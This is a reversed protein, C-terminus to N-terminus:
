AMYDSHIFKVIDNVSCAQWEKFILSVLGVVLKVILGLVWGIIEFITNM